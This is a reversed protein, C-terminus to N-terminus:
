DDPENETGKAPVRDPYKLGINDCGDFSQNTDGDKQDTDHEDDEAGQYETILLVKKKLTISIM